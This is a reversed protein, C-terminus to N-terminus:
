QAASEKQKVSAVEEKKRDDSKLSGNAAISVGPLTFDEATIKKVLDIAMKKNDIM